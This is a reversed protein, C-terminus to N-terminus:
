AAFPNQIKSGDVIQRDNLDESYVTACGADIAACLILSDWFSFQSKISIDVASLILPVSIKLVPLNDGFIKVLAKAKEKDCLMKKTVVNYFEQLCQTSIVGNGSAIANKILATAIKQKRPDSEDAYYVLINTDFFVKGETTKSTEKKTKKDKM